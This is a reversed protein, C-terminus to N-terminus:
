YRICYVVNKSDSLDAQLGSNFNGATKPPVGLVVNNPLLAGRQAAGVNADSDYNTVYISTDFEGAGSDFVHQFMYGGISANATLRLGRGTGYVPMNNGIILKAGTFNPVNFTTNGDGAGWTTGIVNFLAAYTTRSIAAGDCILYGAPPTSTSWVIITGTPNGCQAAINLIVDQGTASINSLDIDAKNSLQGLIAGANILSADQVTDGVYYYLTGNGSLSTYRYNYNIGSTYAEISVEEGKLAVFSITGQGNGNPNYTGVLRDGAYVNVYGSGNYVRVLSLVNRPATFLTTRTTTTELKESVYLSDGSPLDEEGNLLPLRFTQDNQNVVFDYDTPYVTAQDKEPNRVFVYNTGQYEAQFSGDGAVSTIVSLPINEYSGDTWGYCTMGVKPTLTPLTFIIGSDSPSYAYMVSNLFGSVGANMQKAIWDYYDPYVARANYSGNSALWSANDPAVDSYMSQGFFFPTNINYERIAPLTEEVGTAVQIYYPYQVAEQQVPANDQYTSSSDSADFIPVGSDTGSSMNFNKVWRKSKSFVGTGSVDSAMVGAINSRGTINPLSESKIGGILALDVLGQANVVAPLRITGATDDVVFKGCQGLKSNTKEAQWNEETTFANAMTSMRAKVAATFAPFQSQIIVQGNLYRRKNKSEDIGLPAFGVDMLELGGGLRSKGVDSLNALDVDAKGVFLETNLGATNDIASQNYTGMYFYLYSQNGAVKVGNGTSAESSVYNGLGDEYGVLSYKTRPLKFRTNELDLIFYFASGTAAYINMIVSQQSADAIKMGNACRKYTITYAGITETENAGGEANYISVLEAYAASYVEGSQWSFTDARLWEINNAVWPFRSPYFLPLKTGNYQHVQKVTPALADSTGQMFETDSALPIDVKVVEINSFWRLDIRMGAPIPTNFTVTKGNASLEYTTPPVVTHEILVLMANKDYCAYDLAISATESGSAPIEMSRVAAQQSGGSGGSDAVLYDTLKLLDCPYCPEFNDMTKGDVLDFSAIRMIHRKVWAGDVLRYYDNGNSDRRVLYGDEVTPVKIGYYLQDKSVYFLEKETDDYLVYFSVTEDGGTPSVTVTYTADTISNYSKLAGIGGPNSAEDYLDRGDSYNINFGAPMTITMGSVSAPAKFGLICNSVYGSNKIGMGSSSEVMGTAQDISLTSNKGEDSLVYGKSIPDKSFTNNEANMTANPLNLNTFTATDAKLKGLTGTAEDSLVVVEGTAQEVTIVIRKDGYVLEYGNSIPNKSFRNDSANLLANPLVLGEFTAINARFDKREAPFQASVVELSDDTSKLATERGIQFIKSTTGRNDLMKAM